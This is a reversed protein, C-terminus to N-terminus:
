TNLSAGCKSCYKPPSFPNYEFITRGCSKCFQTTKINLLPVLIAGPIAVWLIISPFDMLYIFVLLIPISIATGLLLVTRKLKVNRNLYFFLLGGVSMVAAILFFISFVQFREDM